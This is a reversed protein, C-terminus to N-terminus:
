KPWVLGRGDISLPGSVRRTALVEDLHLTLINFGAEDQGSSPWAGQAQRGLLPIAQELSAETTHVTISEDQGPHSFSVTIQGPDEFEVAATPYALLM